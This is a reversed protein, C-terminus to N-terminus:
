AVAGRSTRSQRTKRTTSEAEIEESTSRRGKKIWEMLESRLFYLRKAPRHSPIRRNHVLDYITATTIGLFDAAQQATLPSDEITLSESTPQNLRDLLARVLQRTESVEDQLKQFDVTM